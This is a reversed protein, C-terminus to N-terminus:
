SLDEFTLAGLVPFQNPALQTDSMPVILDNASGAVSSIASEIGQVYIKGGLGVSLIYPVLAAQVAAQAAVTNSSLAVTVAQPVIVGAYVTVNGRVPRRADIYAQIAAVQASTPVAPGSLLVIVGVTGLGNYERVVNVWAAGADTAWRTYDAPNGGGVPNRIADIIRARWSEVGEIPAGGAIGEQDSTVSQVGALPSVLTLATNAALNGGTGAATATVSLSATAGAPISTATNVSWQASGDVTLLTGQPIAVASSCAVVVNGVAATAGERPVGWIQAHQPLLGAETATTVMLELGIDRLYLYTEYDGLAMLISLAQELTSPATADLTVSTGDSAVFTQQALGAAFRRAIQAPTPIAATM